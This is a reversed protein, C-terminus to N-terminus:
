GRGGFASSMQRALEKVIQMQASRPQDAAVAEVLSAALRGIHSYGLPAAAGVLMYCVAIAAKIDNERAARTLLECQERMNHTMDSSFLMSGGTGPGDSGIRYKSKMVREAVARLVQEQSLPKALLAVNPLDALGDKMASGPDATIFIAPSQVGNERMAALMKVGSMDPLSWDSLIIDYGDAVAAIGDAASTVAHIALKTERLYHRVIKTNLPCDEVLLMRGSVTEPRVFELLHFNASRNMDIFLSMNIMKTFKVGLEHLTGKRHICRMVEGKVDAATGALRPLFVTCPTGPYVYGSHLLAIGGQSLNRCALRLDVESGGPHSLRVMVSSHRFPWRAFTRRLNGDMLTDRADMRELMDVLDRDSVGITNVRGAARIKLGRSKGDLPFQDM